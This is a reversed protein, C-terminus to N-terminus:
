YISCASMRLTPSAAAVDTCSIGNVSVVHREIGGGSLSTTPVGAKVLASYIAFATSAIPTVVKDAYTDTLEGQSHIFGRPTYEIELNIVELKLVEPSALQTVGADTLSDIIAQAEKGHVEM